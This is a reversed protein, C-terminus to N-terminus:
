RATVWGLRKGKGVAHVGTCVARWITVPSWAWAAFAGLSFAPRFTSAATTQFAPISPGTAWAM